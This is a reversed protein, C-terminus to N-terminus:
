INASKLIKKVFREQERFKKESIKNDPSESVYKKFKRSDEGELIPTDKIPIAM